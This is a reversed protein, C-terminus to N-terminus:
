LGFGRLREIYWTHHCASSCFHEVDVVHGNYFQKIVVDDKHVPNACHACSTWNQPVPLRPPNTFDYEWEEPFLSLQESM